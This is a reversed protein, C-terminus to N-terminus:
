LDKNIKNFACGDELCDTNSYSFDCCIETTSGLNKNFKQKLFKVSEDIAIYSDRKCCRPGGVLAIRKLTDATLLNALQWEIGATPNSCAILSMFIGTGIAAGCTGMYGCKGAPMKQSRSKAAKLYETKRNEDPFTNFYSTLLVAPVIFHHEQGHMKIEPLMFITKALKVPDKENTSLCFREILDYSDTSSCQKCIFHGESCLETTHETQNCIYCQKKARKVSNVDNGCFLCTMQTNM